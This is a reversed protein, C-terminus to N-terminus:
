SYEVGDPVKCRRSDGVKECEVEAYDDIDDSAEVIEASSAVSEDNMDAAAVVVVSGVAVVHTSNECLSLNEVRPRCQM